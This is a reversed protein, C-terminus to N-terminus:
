INRRLFSELYARVEIQEELSNDLKLAVIKSLYAAPFHKLYHLDRLHELRQSQGFLERLRSEAVPTVFSAEISNHDLATIVAQYGKKDRTRDRELAGANLCIGSAASAAIATDSFFERNAKQDPNELLIPQKASALSAIVKAVSATAALSFATCSFRESLYLPEWEKADQPLQVYPVAKLGATDLLKYLECRAEYGLDAVFLGIEKIGLPAVSSLAGRWDTEPRAVVGVLIPCNNVVTSM